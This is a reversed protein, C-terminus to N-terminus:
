CAEHCLRARSRLRSANAFCIAAALFAVVGAASVLGLFFAMGMLASGVGSWAPEQVSYGWLRGPSLGGLGLLLALTFYLIAGVFLFASM